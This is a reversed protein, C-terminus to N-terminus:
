VRTLAEHGAAELQSRYREFIGTGLPLLELVKAVPGRATMEGRALAVAPNLRGLWFRHAVDADMRLIVEPRLSTEGLDVRREEGEAVGVTLVADPRRLQYQVVTDARAFPRGLEEDAAVDQLLRGLHEYVEIDSAFFAM